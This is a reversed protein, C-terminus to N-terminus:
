ILSGGAGFNVVLTIEKDPYTSAQASLSVASLALASAVISKMLKKM